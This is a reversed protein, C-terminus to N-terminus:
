LHYVPHEKLIPFDTTIEPIVFCHFLCKIGSMERNDSQIDLSLDEFIFFNPLNNVLLIM